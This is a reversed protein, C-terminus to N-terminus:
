TFIAKEVHRICLDNQHSMFYINTLVEAIYSFARTEVLAPVEASYEKEMFETIEFFWECYAGFVEKKACLMNYTYQYPGELIKLYDKYEAPHVAKLGKLLAEKVDESIFRRFQYLENPYCIYPLPLLADIEGSLLEPRM